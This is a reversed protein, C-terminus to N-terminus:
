AVEPQTEGAAALDTAALTRADSSTSRESLALNTELIVRLSRPKASVVKSGTSCSICSNSFRSRSSPGFGRWIQPPSAFWIMRNRLPFGVTVSNADEPM